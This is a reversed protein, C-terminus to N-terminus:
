RTYSWDGVKMEFADSLTIGLGGPASGDVVISQWYSWFGLLSSSNPIPVLTDHDGTAATTFYFGILLWDHYIRCNQGANLPIGAANKVLGIAYAGPASATAGWTRILWKTNGIM